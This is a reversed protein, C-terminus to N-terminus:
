LGEHCVEQAELVPASVRERRFLRLLFTLYDLPVAPPRRDHLEHMLGHLLLQGFALPGGDGKSVCQCRCLLDHMGKLEPRGPIATFDLLFKSGHWTSGNTTHEESIEVPLRQLARHEKCLAGLIQGCEAGQVLALRAPRTHEHRVVDVAWGIAQPGRAEEVHAAGVLALGEELAELVPEVCGLNRGRVDGLQEGLHAALVREGSQHERLEVGKCIGAFATHCQM